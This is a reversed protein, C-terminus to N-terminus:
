LCIGFRKLIQAYGWYALIMALSSIVLAPYFRLGLKLLLPFVIFFLLSPLVMWFISTSLDATAKTDGTDQYLWILALLSTLPLSALVAALLTSRRAAESVGAILLSTLVTKIMLHLM